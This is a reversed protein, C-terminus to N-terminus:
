PSDFTASVELVILLDFFKGVESLVLFIKNKVRFETEIVRDFKELLLVKEAAVIRVYSTM